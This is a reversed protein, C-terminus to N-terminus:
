KYLRRVFLDTLIAFAGSMQQGKAVSYKSYTITCPVEVYALGLNAIQSLIESAHAMRNQNIQMQQAASRSLVRLGNHTDTIALRTTVRTFITALKLFVRKGRSLGEANGLFRSALVVDCHEKYLVQVMAAADAASHQGDADFTVISEAGQSLAYQIGTYLAAGQGLNVPHRCVHAGAKLALIETADSSHDDVVVVNDFYASVDKVTATIVEAENFAPIVVWTQTQIRTVVPRM